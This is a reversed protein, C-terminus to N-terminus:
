DSSLDPVRSPTSPWRNDTPAMWVDGPGPKPFIKGGFHGGVKPEGAGMWLENLEADQWVEDPSPGPSVRDRRVRDVLGVIHKPFQNRRPHMYYVHSAASNVDRYLPDEVLSRSSRVSGPAADALDSPAVSAPGRVWRRGTHLGDGAGIEHATEFHYRRRFPTSPQGAPQTERPRIRCVRAM